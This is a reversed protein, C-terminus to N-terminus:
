RGDMEDGYISWEGWLPWAVYFDRCPFSNLTVKNQVRMAPSKNGQLELPITNSLTQSQPSTNAHPHKTRILHMYPLYTTQFTATPVSIWVLLLKCRGWHILQTLTLYSPPARQQSWSRSLPHASLGLGESRHEGVDANALPAFPQYSWKIIFLTRANNMSWSALITSKKHLWQPWARARACLVRQKNKYPPFLSGSLTSGQPIYWEIIWQFDVSTESCCIEIKPCLFLSLLFDAHFCLWKGGAKVSTEKEAWEEVTIITIHEKSNAKLPSFPRIGRFISSKM